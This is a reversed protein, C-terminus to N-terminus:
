TEAPLATHLHMADPRYRRRMITSEYHVASLTINSETQYNSRLTEPDVKYFLGTLFAQFDAVTQIATNCGLGTTPDVTGLTDGALLYSTQGLTGCSADSRDAGIETVSIKDLPLWSTWEFKGKMFLFQYMKLINACCFSMAVWHNLYIDKEKQAKQLDSELRDLLPLHPTQQKAREFRENAEDCNKLVRQMEETEIKSLGCGLYNQKPTSLTLAGAIKRNPNSFREGKFIFSFLFLTHYYVSVATNALTKGVYQFFTSVGSIHPRDDKFLATIVPISPLIAIRRNGLLQENTESHAGEAVVVLDVANLRLEKGNDDIILDAKRNPDSDFAKLQASYHIVQDDTLEAIVAKIAEELDKLRVSLFEQEQIPHTLGKDQLYYYVGLDRLISQTQPSLAVTNERGPADQRRKEILTVPSGSLLGYLARLLGAPGGGLIAIRPPNVYTKLAQDREIKLSEIKKLYTSGATPAHALLPHTELKITM